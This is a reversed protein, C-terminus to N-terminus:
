FTKRQDLPLIRIALRGVVDDASIPGFMRSDLSNGRNDGMVFVEDPGVIQNVEGDSNKIIGAQPGEKDPDFGGPHADNYITVLGDKVVVRDGPVGIVRKILQRKEPGNSGLSVEQRNFVVIDYRDPIYANGTIKAWTRAAKLVILRDKDNLTSLMSPGEVEYSQFVFTVLALAILPAAVIVGITSLVDRRGAKKRQKKEIPQIEPNPAFTDM